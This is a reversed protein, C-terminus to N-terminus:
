EIETHADLDELIYVDVARVGYQMCTDRSNMYQDVLIRGSLMAGGTDAAIAYGYDWSGDQTLTFNPGMHSSVPTSPSMGWRFIGALRGM